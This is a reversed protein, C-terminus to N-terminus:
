TYLLSCGRTESTSLRGLIRFRDRDLVETLDDTAIFSCSDVNALDIVNLVGRGGERKITLPDDVERAWVQMWPPCQFIEDEESYAQSFLETMGYESQVNAGTREKLMRHLESRIPEQGRGKMGGTEIIITDKLPMPFQETFDILAFTVGFLLTPVSVSAQLKDSLASFDNLFFANDVHGSAKMLYEVMYVLSSHQRELYSPLLALIRYQTPHGFHMMFHSLFSREYLRIDSVWHKSPTQGTTSSSDFYLVPDESSSRVSHSKFFSIPLFPIEEVSQVQHPDLIGIAKSYNRFVANQQWQYQFLSLAAHSFNTPALSWLSAIFKERNM